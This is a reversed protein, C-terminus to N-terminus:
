RTLVRGGFGVDLFRTELLSTLRESPVLGCCISPTYMNIQDLGGGGFFFGAGLFRTYLLSTLRESPVLGCCFKITPTYINKYVLIEWGM